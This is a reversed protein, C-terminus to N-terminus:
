QELAELEKRIKEKSIIKDVRLKRIEIKDSEEQLAEIQRTFSEKLVNVEREKEEYLVISADLEIQNDNVKQIRKDLTSQLQKVNSHEKSVILRADEIEKTKKGLLSEKTDVSDVKVRIDNYQKKLEASLKKAEKESKNIEDLKQEYERRIVQAAKDTIRANEICQHQETILKDLHVQRDEAIKILGNVKNEKAKLVTEEERVYADVRAIEKSKESGEKNKVSITKQLKKIDDSLIAKLGVLDDYRNSSIKYQKDKEKCKKDLVNVRQKYEQIKTEYSDYEKQCEM